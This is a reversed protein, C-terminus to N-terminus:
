HMIHLALAFRDQERRAVGKAGGRAFLQDAPSFAILDMDNGAFRRDLRPSKRHRRQRARARFRHASQRYRRVVAWGIARISSSFFILRTIPFASVPAGCSTNRVMSAFVPWFARAWTWANSAASPKVPRITVLSSPVAFPPM